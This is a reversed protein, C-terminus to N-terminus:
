YDRFNCGNNLSKLIEHFKKFPKKILLKEYGNFEHTYLYPDFRKELESKQLIFVRNPNLKTNSITYTNM